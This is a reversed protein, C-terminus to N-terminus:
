LSRYARDHKRLEGVSVEKDVSPLISGVVGDVQPLISGVLGDVLLLISDVVKDVVKDVPLLISLLDVVNASTPEPPRDMLHPVEDM